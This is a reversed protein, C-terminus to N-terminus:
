EEENEDYNVHVKYDGSDDDDLCCKPVKYTLEIALIDKEKIKHFITNCGVISPNLLKYCGACVEIGTVTLNCPSIPTSSIIAVPINAQFAFDHIIPRCEISEPLIIKKRIIGRVVALNSCVLEIKFTEACPEVIVREPKPIGPVLCFDDEIVAQGCFVQERPIPCSTCEKIEISM